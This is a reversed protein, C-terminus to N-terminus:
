KQKERQKKSINIGDQKHQEIFSLMVSSWEREAKESEKQPSPTTLSKRETTIEKSNTHL